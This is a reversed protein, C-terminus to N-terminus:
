HRGSAAGRAVREWHQISAATPFPTHLPNRYVIRYLTAPMRRGERWLDGVDRLSGDFYFRERTVEANAGRVTLFGAMVLLVYPLDNHDLRPLAVVALLAIAVLMEILTFGSDRRASAGKVCRKM